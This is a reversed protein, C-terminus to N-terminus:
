LKFRGFEPEFEPLMDHQIAVAIASDKSPTLGIGLTQSTGDKLLADGQGAKSNFSSYNTNAGM